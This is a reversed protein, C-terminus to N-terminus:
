LGFVQYIKDEEIQRESKDDAHELMVEVKNQLTVNIFRNVDIGRLEFFLFPNEDFRVAIGYLVAAVHKCMLAWDPCSCDYNIEQPSPFLGDEGLFLAKLEDPFNGNILEELNEIEEGCAQIIKQCQAEKLPSIRIEVKYPTKRSGQVRANIKGEQIQLDIVTGSKVYRKGRDIRNAYDAYRELNNCWAQGWWSNAIKRGQVIVPHMEKGKSKAKESSEKAKRQLEEVSMQSYTQFENWYRSM